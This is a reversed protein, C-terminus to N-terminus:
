FKYDAIDVGFFGMQERAEHFMKVHEPTPLPLDSTKDLYSFHLVCSPVLRLEGITESTESTFKKGVAENLTFLNSDVGLITSVFDVIEGVTEHVGFLAEVVANNPFRIRVISVKFPTPAPRRRKSCVTLWWEVEAEREQQMRKVDEGSLNYTWDPVEIPVIKANKDLFYAKAHRYVDVQLPPQPTTLEEIYPILVTTDKGSPYQLVDGKDETTLREFGCYIFFQEAGIAPWVHEKFANNEIRLQYYKPDEPHAVLNNIVKAIRTTAAEKVKATNATQFLRVIEFRRDEDSLNPDQIIADLYLTFLERGPGAIKGDNIKQSTFLVPNFKQKAQPVPESPPKQTQEFVEREEVSMDGLRRQLEREKEIELQRERRRIENEEKKRQEEAYRREVALRAADRPDEIVPGGSSSGSNDLRQGPGAKATAVANRIETKKKSFFKKMTAPPPADDREPNSRRQSSSSSQTRKSVRRVCM